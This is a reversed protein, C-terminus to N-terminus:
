KGGTHGRQHFTQEVREGTKLRTQKRVTSNQSNKLYESYLSQWILSKCINEATQIKGKWERFLTDKM